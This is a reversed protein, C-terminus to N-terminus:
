RESFVKLLAMLAPSHASLHERFAAEPIELVLTDDLARLTASRERREILAMEGFCDGPRGVAVQKGAKTVVLNGALVVYMAHGEEGEHCLAQGPALAVERCSGLLGDLEAPSLSGLLGTRRLLVIKEAREM